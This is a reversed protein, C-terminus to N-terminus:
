YQLGVKRDDWVSDEQKCKGINNIDVLTESIGHKIRNIRGSDNFDNEIASIAKNCVDM